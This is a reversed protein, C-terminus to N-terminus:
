GTTLEDEWTLQTILLNEVWGCGGFLAVHPMYPLVCLSSCLLVNGPLTTPKQIERSYSQTLVHYMVLLFCFLVYYSFSSIPAIFQCPFPFNFLYSSPYDVVRKASPSSLFCHLPLCTNNALHLRRGQGRSGYATYLCVIWNWLAPKISRGSSFIVGNMQSFQRQVFRGMASQQESWKFRGPALVIIIYVM